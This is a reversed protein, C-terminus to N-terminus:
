LEFEEEDRVDVDVDVNVLKGFLFSISCFEFLQLSFLPSEIIIKDDFLFKVVYEDDEEDDDEDDDRKLVGQTCFQGILGDFGGSLKGRNAFESGIAELGNCDIESNGVYAEEIDELLM